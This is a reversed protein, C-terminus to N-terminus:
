SEYSVTSLSYRDVIGICVRYCNEEDGEYVVQAINIPYLFFSKTKNEIAGRKQRVGKGAPVYSVLHTREASIIVLLNSLILDWAAKKVFGESIFIAVM